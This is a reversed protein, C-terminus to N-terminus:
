LVVKQVVYLGVLDQAEQVNNHGICGFANCFIPYPIDFSIIIEKIMIQTAMELLHIMLCDKFYNISLIYLSKSTHETYTVKKDQVCEKVDTLSEEMTILIVSHQTNRKYKYSIISNLKVNYM